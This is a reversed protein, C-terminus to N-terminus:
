MSLRAPQRSLGGGKETRGPRKRRRRRLLRARCCPMGRGGNARITRAGRFCAARPRCNARSAASQASAPSVSKGGPGSADAASDAGGGPGFASGVYAYYGPIFDFTGLRGIELRKMTGLGMILIYTGKDDPIDM